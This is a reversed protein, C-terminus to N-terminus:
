KYRGLTAALLVDYNGQDHEITDRLKYADLQHEIVLECGWGPNCGTLNAKGDGDSDFLKAIKPNKLQELNTIKYQDATKKDIQYSQLADAIIVGVKELKQDGGNQLFFKQRQQILFHYLLFLVM